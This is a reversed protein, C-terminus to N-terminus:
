TKKKRTMTQIRSEVYENYEINNYKNNIIKCNSLSLEWKLFVLLEFLFYNVGIRRENDSFKSTNKKFKIGMNDLGKRINKIFIDKINKKTEPVRLQRIIRLDKDIFDDIVSNSIVSQLKLQNELSFDSKKLQGIEDLYNFHITFDLLYDFTTLIKSDIFIKLTNIIRNKDANSISSNNRFDINKNFEHIYQKSVDIPHNGDLIQKESIIFISYFDHRLYNVVFCIEQVIRIFTSQDVIDTHYEVLEKIKEFDSLNKPLACLTFVKLSETGRLDTIHKENQYSPIINFRFLNILESLRESSIDLEINKEM